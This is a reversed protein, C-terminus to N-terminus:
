YVLEKPIAFGCADLLALGLERAVGKRPTWRDIAHYKGDWSAEVIWRAGDTGLESVLWPADFFRLKEARAKIRTFTAADVARTDNRKLWLPAYGGAGAGEKCTATAGGRPDVDDIALTVAIPHHFSRLWVFRIQARADAKMTGFAPEELEKLQRTYWESEALYADRARPDGRRVVPAFLDVPANSGDAAAVLAVLALAVPKVLCNDADRHRANEERTPGM